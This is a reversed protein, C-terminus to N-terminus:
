QGLLERANWRAYFPDCGGDAMGFDWSLLMRRKSSHVDFFEQSVLPKKIGRAREAITSVIRTASKGRANARGLHSPVDSVTHAAVWDPSIEMFVIMAVNTNAERMAVEATAFVSFPLVVCTSRLLMYWDSESPCWDDGFGSRSKLM